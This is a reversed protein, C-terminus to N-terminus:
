IQHVVIMHSASQNPTDTAREHLALLLDVLEVGDPKREILEELGASDVRRNAFYECIFANARAVGEGGHSSEREREVVATTTATTTTTTANKKELQKAKAEAKELEGRLTWTEKAAELLERSLERVHKQLGMKEGAMEVSVRRLRDIEAHLRLNEDERERRERLAERLARATEEADPKEVRERSFLASPAFISFLRSSLGPTAVAVAPSAVESAPTTPPRKTKKAVPSEFRDMPTRPADNEDNEDIPTMPTAPAAKSIAGARRKKGDRAVDANVRADTSLARFMKTSKIRADSLRADDLRRTPLRM